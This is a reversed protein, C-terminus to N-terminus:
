GRKTLSLVPTLLYWLLPLARRRNVAWSKYFNRQAAAPDKRWYMKAAAFYCDSAKTAIESEPLVGCTRHKEFMAAVGESLKATDASLSGESKRYYYTREEAHGIQFGAIVARIWYDVDEWGRMTIDFEGVTEMLRRSIAASSPNIFNRRFLDKGPDTVKFAESPLLVMEGPRPEKFVFGDTYALDAKGSRLIACLRELHAPLWFDDADLFALYAGRAAKMGTNRAASPGQAGAHEFLKTTQSASAAFERVIQPTRDTGGDNVVILEWNRYTQSRVGELTKAIFQEANHAPTVISVLEEAM